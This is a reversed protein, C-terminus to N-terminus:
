DAFHQEDSLIVERMAVAEELTKFNRCIFKRIYLRYFGDKMSIYKEGTNTQKGNKQHCMHPVACNINGQRNIWELNTVHNNSPDADIHNVEDFGPKRELFAEAVLRHIYGNKREGNKKLSVIKYGHGNDTPKILRGPMIRTQIGWRSRQTVMRDLSRVHGADSVQYWGEYGHIDRWTECRGQLISESM